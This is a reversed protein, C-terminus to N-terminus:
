WAASPSWSVVARRCAGCVAIGDAPLMGGWTVAVASPRRAVQGPAPTSGCRPQDAPVPRRRREAIGQLDVILDVAASQYICFSGDADVPVVALNAVTRGPAVNGNSKSQEGAVVASCRDATVYGASTAATLTLNVLVAAAGSPAHLTPSRALGSAPENLPHRAPAGRGPHDVGVGGGDAPAFYGQVDVVTNAARNAWRAFRGVRLGFGLTPVIGLNAVTVMAAFNANSRTQEGPPLSGCADATLYGGGAPNTVTLNVAAATAACIGVIDIQQVAGRGRARDARAHRRRWVDTRDPHRRRTVARDGRQAALWRGAQHLGACRRRRAYSASSYVCFWGVADIPVASLNAVNQGAPSTGTRRRACGRRRRAVRNPPSTARPWRTSPRSTSWRWPRTPRRTPTSSWAPRQRRDPVTSARCPSWVPTTSSTRAGPWRCSPTPFAETPPWSRRRRRRAAASNSTLDTASDGRDIHGFASACGKGWGYGGWYLGWKEAAQVVWQPIDVQLPLQCNAYPIEPNAATNMDLALGYSHNSLSSRTLGQCDKRSNSTCRFVYTGIDTIQYGGAVIGRM